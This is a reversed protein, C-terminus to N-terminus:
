GISLKLRQIHPTARRQLLAARVPVVVNARKIPTVPM